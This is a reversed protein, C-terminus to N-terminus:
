AVLITMVFIIDQEELLQPQQELAQLSLQIAQIARLEKAKRQQSRTKQIAAEHAQILDDLRKFEQEVSELTKLGSYDITKSKGTRTVRKSTEKVESQIIGRKIREETPDPKKPYDWAHGGTNAEEENAPNITAPYETFTLTELTGIVNVDVTITAPYETLTLTELTGTVNTAAGETITAAYETFTLTELTGTVATEDNVTAQYETFTLTELTGTVRVELEATVTAAYETFTLTELTGTVNVDKTVTAAYETLTLTELTGNVTTSSAASGTYYVLDNAPKLISYPQEHLLKIEADSLARNFISVSHYDFVGGSGSTDIDYYCGVGWGDVIGNVSGTNSNSAIEEGNVYIHMGSSNLVVAANVKDGVSFPKTNLSVDLNYATGGLFLRFRWVNATQLFFRFGETNGISTDILTKISTINETSPILATLDLSVTFETLSDLSVVDSVQWRVWEQVVDTYTLAKQSRNTTYKVSSGTNSPKKHNLLNRTHAEDDLTLFSVLGDSLPNSWDVDVPVTPKVTGNYYLNKPLKYNAM